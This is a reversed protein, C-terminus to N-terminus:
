PKARKLVFLGLKAGAPSEFEKPRETTQENPMCIKLVDGDLEYIAPNSTGKFPGDQAITDIAKPSKSPDLKIKFERRGIGGPGTLLMTDGTFTITLGERSEPVQEGNVIFEAATWKGQLKQQDGAADDARVSGALFAIIVFAFWPRTQM